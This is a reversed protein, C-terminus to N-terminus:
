CHRSKLSGKKVQKLYHKKAKFEDVYFKTIKMICMILVKFKEVKGYVKPIQPLQKLKSAFGMCKKIISTM